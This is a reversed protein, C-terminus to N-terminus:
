EGEFYEYSDEQYGQPCNRGQCYARRRARQEARQVNQRNKEYLSIQDREKANRNREAVDDGEKLILQEEVEETPANVVASQGPSFFTCMGVTLCLYLIKSM